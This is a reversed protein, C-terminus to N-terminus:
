VYGEGRLWAETRELGEELGVRPEYGLVRRAKEISYTGTRSLYRMASPTVETPERRLRGAALMVSALAVGVATPVTRPEGKGLLRTFHAFYERTTIAIGDTLTFVQGAGEDRGGALLVGDVLNDVYVPSFIGRGGAPLAFAGQKIAEVPLIVWPRSAPGYVDGPRVITAAVEGAAHAQLVVQEGAIKTDVYANGDPRVPWSEDVGDPFGSDGFARVSSFSVLRGADRAAEVVRRTGLVNVKWQVAAPVFNSVVAATHIVLDAGAARRQWDGPESIDGAVVSRSADGAVDVGGVAWGEERLRAELARGIFGSAGTIFARRSM